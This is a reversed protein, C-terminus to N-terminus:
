KMKLRMTVTKYVKEHVGEPLMCVKGKCCEIKEWNKSSKELELATNRSIKLHMLNDEAVDKKGRLYKKKRQAVKKKLWERSVEYPVDLYVVLDPRPIGFIKHEMTDLWKLFEKRKVSSKIKGGQHIQNASVYRDIIVVFGDELWRKIDSSAEFRDAAYLVSALRPDVQIFDGYKGSLYEGILGGFFNDYYRPFDISKVKVGEKELRKKLLAVQTAKGSGDIGDIVVLKGKKLKM